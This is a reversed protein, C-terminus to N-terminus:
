ELMAQQHGTCKNFVKTHDSFPTEETVPKSTETKTVVKKVCTLECDIDCVAGETYSDIYNRGKSTSPKYLDEYDTVVKQRGREDYHVIKGKVCTIRCDDDYYPQSDYKVTILIGDDRFTASCNGVDCSDKVSKVCKQRYTQGAEKGNNKHKESNPGLDRLLGKSNRKRNKGEGYDENGCVSSNGGIDSKIIKKSSKMRVDNRKRRQQLKRVKVRDFSHRQKRDSVEKVIRKRKPASCCNDTIANKRTSKRKMPRKIQVNSTSSEKTVKRACKDSPLTNLKKFCKGGKDDIYSRKKVKGSASHRKIPDKTYTCSTGSPGKECSELKIKGTVKTTSKCVGKRKNKLFAKCKDTASGMKDQSSGPLASDMKKINSSRAITPDVETIPLVGDKTCDHKTRKAAATFCPTKIGPAKSIKVRAQNNMYESIDSCQGSTTSLKSSGKIRSEDETLKRKHTGSIDENIGESVKTNLSRKHDSLGGTANVSWQESWTGGKNTRSGNDSFMEKSELINHEPCSYTKRLKEKNVKGTDGFRQSPKQTGKGTGCSQARRIRAGNAEDIAKKRLQLM